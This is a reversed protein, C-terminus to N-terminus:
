LVYGIIIAPERILCVVIIIMKMVDVTPNYEPMFLKGNGLKIENVRFEVIGKIFDQM